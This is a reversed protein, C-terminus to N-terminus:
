IIKKLYKGFVLYRWGFLVKKLKINKLIIQKLDSQNVIIEPRIKNDDSKSALLNQAEQYIVKQSENLKLNVFKIKKNKKIKKQGKLLNLIKNISRTNRINQSAFIKVLEEKSRPNKKAIENLVADKLVFSRPIDKEKALKDRWLILTKVSQCYEPSKNILPFKKFLDQKNIDYSKKGLINKMEELFYKLKNQEILKDKLIKYIQPLYEVDNLAYEVQQFTLPRKKWDSRQQEKSLDEDLLEKVLSAYSINYNFGLFNAMAQTDFLSKPILRLEQFLIELDQFSSHLIKIIGKNKLIKAFPKLDIDKSLPDIAFNKGKINIQILCLIPYFTKNRMFEIDIAVIDGKKISCCLLKLDEQKEILTSAPNFTLSM